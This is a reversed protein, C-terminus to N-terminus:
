CTLQLMTIWAIDVVTIRKKSKNKCPYPKQKIVEETNM